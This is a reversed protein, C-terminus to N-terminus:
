FLFTAKQRVTRFKRVTSEENLELSECHQWTGLLYNIEM